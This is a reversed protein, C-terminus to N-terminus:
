VLFTKVIIYLTCTSYQVMQKFLIEQEILLRSLALTQGLQAPTNSSDDILLIPSSRLM